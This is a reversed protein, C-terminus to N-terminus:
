GQVHLNFRGTYKRVCDIRRECNSCSWRRLASRAGSIVARKVRSLRRTRYLPSLKSPVSDTGLNDRSRWACVPRLSAERRSLATREHLRSRESQGSIYNINQLRILAWISMSNESLTTRPSIHLKLGRVLAERLIGSSGSTEDVVLLTMSALFKM